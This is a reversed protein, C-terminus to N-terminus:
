VGLENIPASLNFLHFQYFRHMFVYLRWKYGVYNVYEVTTIHHFPNPHIAQTPKTSHTPNTRPKEPPYPITTSWSLTLLKHNTKGFQNRYTSSNFPAELVSSRALASGHRAQIGM